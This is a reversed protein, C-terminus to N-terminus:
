LDDNLGRVLDGMLPIGGYRKLLEFYFFARITRAEGLWAQQLAKDRMNVAPFNNLMITAKRIGQYSDVWADDPNFLPTIGGMTMQDVIGGPASTMADDTAADLRDGTGGGPGGIRNHANPLASYVHDLYQRAFQGTPDNPDWLYEPTFRELPEPELTRKCSPSVVLLVPILWIIISKRNM